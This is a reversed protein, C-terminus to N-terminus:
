AFGKHLCKFIICRIGQLFHIANSRWNGECRTRLQWFKVGRCKAYPGIEPNDSQVDKPFILDSLRRGSPDPRRCMQVFTRTLRGGASPWDAQRDAKTSPGRHVARPQGSHGHRAIMASPWPLCGHYVLLHFVKFLLGEMQKLV